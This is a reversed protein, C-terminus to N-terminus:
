TAEDEGILSRTQHLSGTTGESWPLEGRWCDCRPGIPTLADFRYFPGGVGCRILIDAITMFEMEEIGECCLLLVRKGGGM